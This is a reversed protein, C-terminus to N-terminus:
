TFNSSLPLRPRKMLTVGASCALAGFQLPLSQTRGLKFAINFPRLSEARKEKACIFVRNCNRNSPMATAARVHTQPPASGGLRLVASICAAPRTCVVFAHVAPLHSPTRRRALACRIRCAAPPSAPTERCSGPVATRRCPCEPLRAVELTAPSPPSRPPSDNPPHRCPSARRRRPLRGPQQASARLWATSSFMSAFRM